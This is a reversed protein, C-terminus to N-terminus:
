VPNLCAFEGFLEKAKANYAHAADQPTKFLGLYFRRGNLTIHAYWRKRHRYVGKYGSASRVKHTNMLNQSYTCYRLNSRRNDLSDGNIHDILQEKTANM